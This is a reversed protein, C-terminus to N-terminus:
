FIFGSKPNPNSVVIAYSTGPALSCSFIVEKPLPTPIFIM